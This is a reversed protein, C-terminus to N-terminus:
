SKTASCEEAEAQPPKHANKGSRRRRKASRNADIWASMAASNAKAEQPIVIGKGQAIRNAYLLQAPSAPKLEHKGVSDSDAKKPAHESLFKRCGKCAVMLAVIADATRSDIDPGTFAM